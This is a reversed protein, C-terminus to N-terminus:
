EMMPEPFQHDQEEYDDSDMDDEQMDHEMDMDDAEDMQPAENIPEVYGNGEDYELTYINKLKGEEDNEEDYEGEEYGEGEAEMEDELPQQLIAQDVTPFYAHEANLQELQEAKQLLIKQEETLHDEVNLKAERLLQAYQEVEQMRLLERYFDKSAMEVLLPRNAVNIEIEAKKREYQKERLLMIEAAQRKARERMERLALTNDVIAPSKHVRTKMRTQKFQRELEERANLHEDLMKKELERRRMAIQADFKLTSQACKVPPKLSDIEERMRRAKFTLLKEEPRNAADMYQRLQKDPKTECFRFPEGRTLSKSQKENELKRQFELQIREFDPVPKAKMPKFTFEPNELSKARKKMENTDKMAEYMAMRPPLRSQILALEANRKIRADREKQDKKMMYEYMQVKAHGPVPNAKFPEYNMVDYEPDYSKPQHLKKMDREYFSFPKENQKTLVISRQKVDKRRRENADMITQFRPELTSKPVPKARFQKSMEFEDELDNYKVMEQLKRERISLVKKKSRKEFDPASPITIRYKGEGDKRPFMPLNAMKNKVENNIAKNRAAIENEDVKDDESPMLKRLDLESISTGKRTFYPLVKEWVIYKKMYNKQLRRLVQQFTEKDIESVGFPERAIQNLLPQSKESTLVKQVFIDKDVSEIPRIEYSDDEESLNPHM